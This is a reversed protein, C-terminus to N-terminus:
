EFRVEIAELEKQFEENEMLDSVEIYEMSNNSLTYEEEGGYMLERGDLFIHTNSGCIGFVNPETPFEADVWMCDAEELKEMLWDYEEQTRTRYIVKDTKIM